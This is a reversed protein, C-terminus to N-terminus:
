SLEVSWYANSVFAKWSRYKTAQLKMRMVPCRKPQVPKRTLHMHAQRPTRGGKRKNCAVCACVVNNWATPGGQTRPVVHDISLECTAFKRGCYQCHNGDRAFLNRRNLRVHQHPLKDFVFLRIVRPVCIEFSVTRIWEHSDDEDFLERYQSIDRWSDFDFSDYRDNEFVHVIEAAQKAVLAFARRVTVVHVAAYYRNLVLVSSSLASVGTV